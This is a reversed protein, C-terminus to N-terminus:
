EAKRKRAGGSTIRLITEPSRFLAILLHYLRAEDVLHGGYSGAAQALRIGECIELLPTADALTDIFIRHTPSGLGSRVLRGVALVLGLYLAVISYSGTLSAILLSPAVRDSVTAFVPGASTTAPGFPDAPSVRLAWWLARAAAGGAPAGAEAHLQLDLSRLMRGLPAAAATAPLRLALPYLGRLTVTRGVPIRLPGGV